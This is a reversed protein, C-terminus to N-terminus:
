DWVELGQDWKEGETIMLKKKRHRHRNRNQLNM